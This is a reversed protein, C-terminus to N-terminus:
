KVAACKVKGILLVRVKCIDIEASLRAACLRGKELLRLLSRGLLSSQGVDLFLVGSVSGRETDQACRLVFAYAGIM